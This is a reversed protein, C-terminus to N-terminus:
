CLNYARDSDSGKGSWITESLWGVKEGDTISNGNM